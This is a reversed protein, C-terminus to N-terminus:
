QELLKKLSKPCPMSEVTFRGHGAQTWSLLGVRKGSWSILNMVSDFSITNLDFAIAIDMEWAEFISRYTTHPVRANWAGIYTISTHLLPKGKTIPILLCSRDAAPVCNLIRLGRQIATKSVTFRKGAEYMIGMVAGVPIGYGGNITRHQTGMYEAHPNRAAKAEGRKRKPPPPSIIVVDGDKKQDTDGPYDPISREADKSLKNQILPTTGTVKGFWAQEVSPPIIILKKNDAIEVVTAKKM